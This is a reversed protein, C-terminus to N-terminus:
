QTRSEMWYRSRPKDTATETENESDSEDEFIRKRTQESPLAERRQRLSERESMISERAVRSREDSAMTAERLRQVLAKYMKQLDKYKRVDIKLGDREIKAKLRRLAFPAQELNDLMYTYVERTTDNRANRISKRLTDKFEELIPAYRPAWVIKKATPPIKEALVESILAVNKQFAPGKRRIPFIKLGSQQQVSIDIKYRDEKYSNIEQHANMFMMRYIATLNGARYFQKYADIDVAFSTTWGNTVFISDSIDAKRFIKAEVMNEIFFGIPDSDQTYYHMGASLMEYYVYVAVIYKEDTAKWFDKQLVSVKRKIADVIQSIFIANRHEKAFKMLDRVNIGFVGLYKVFMSRIKEQLPTFDALTVQTRQTDAYGDVYTDQEVAGADERDAAAEEGAGEGYGVDDTEEQDEDDALNEDRYGVEDGEEDLEPTVYESDQEVLLPQDLTRLEGVTFGDIKNKIDAATIYRVIQDDPTLEVGRMRGDELVHQVQFYHGNKLEIDIIFIDRSTIPSLDTEVGTMDGATQLLVERQENPLYVRVAYSAPYINTIRAKIRAEDDIQFTGTTGIEAPRNNDARFYIPNVLEYKDFERVRQEDIVRLLKGYHGRNPGGVIIMQDLSPKPTTDQTPSGITIGRAETIKELLKELKEKEEREQIEQPSPMGMVFKDPQILVFALQQTKPIEETMKVKKMQSLLTEMDSETTESMGVNKMQTTIRDLEQDVSKPQSEVARKKAPSRSVEIRKLLTNHSAGRKLKESLEDLLAWIDQSREYDLDYPLVAFVNQRSTEGRKMLGALMGLKVKNDTEDKFAIVRRINDETEKPTEALSLADIEFLKVLYGEKGRFSIEYKKDTQTTIKGMEGAYIGRLIYVFPSHTFAYEKTVVQMAPPQPVVPGGTPGATAQIQQTISRLFNM